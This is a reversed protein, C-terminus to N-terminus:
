DVDSSRARAGSLLSGSTPRHPERSVGLFASCPSFRIGGVRPARCRGHRKCASTSQRVSAISPRTRATWPLPGRSSVVFMFFLSIRLFLM